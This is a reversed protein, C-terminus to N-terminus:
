YYIKDLLKNYLHYTIKTGKNAASTITIGAFPFASYQILDLFL